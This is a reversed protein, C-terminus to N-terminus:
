ARRRFSRKRGQAQEDREVVKRVQEDLAAVAAAISPIDISRVEKRVRQVASEVRQELPAIRDELLSSVARTLGKEAQDLRRELARLDQALRPAMRPRGFSSVVSSLRDLDERISVVTRQFKKQMKVADQLDRAQARGAMAVRLDGRFGEVAASLAESVEPRLLAEVRDAVARDVGSVSATVAASVREELAAGRQASDRAAEALQSRIAAADHSAKGAIRALAAIESSLKTSIETRVAELRESLTTEAVDLETTLRGIQDGVADVQEKLTGILPLDSTLDELMTEVKTLREQLEAGDADLRGGLRAIGERLARQLGQQVSTSLRTVARGLSETLAETIAVGAEDVRDGLAAVLGAEMDGLESADISGPEGELLPHATSRSAARFAAIRSREEVSLESQGGPPERDHWTLKDAWIRSRLEQPKVPPLDEWRALFGETKKAPVRDGPEDDGKADAEAPAPIHEDPM